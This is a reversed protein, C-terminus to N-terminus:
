QAVVNTADAASWTPLNDLPWIPRPLHKWDFKEIQSMTHGFSDARVVLSTMDAYYQFNSATKVVAIKAEAPELGLSRYVIPHNGAIGVNETVVLRVNDIELLARRGMDFESRGVVDARIPGEGLAAIRATVELPHSFNPDLRGGVTLTLTSGQGAEWCQAVAVPDVITLLALEPVRQRLLESLIVTSDGSAGGFVNDGVDTIVVLGREAEIARRVADPVPISDQVLFQERMDWAMQALETSLKAALEPDNDTVVTTMWGGEPVDLWPQMPFNSVAVVKDMQEMERARDFWTKMPPYATLFREQHTIMPIRHWAITPRIEGRVIAFLHKAARYGSDYPNHPQTRHGLLCDLNNIKRHTIAAHHDFPAVIPVNPGLVRRATELLAGEVDPESIAAAAGHLGFFFGDVKGAARLGSEIKEIFYAVTEDTLPGNAFGWGSIIPVPELEIGEDQAAQFFAGIYGNSKGLRTIIEEGEYLGYQRFTDVTTLASSFHCTEQGIDAIAIRM